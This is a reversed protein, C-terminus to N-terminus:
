GLHRLDTEWMDVVAHAKVLVSLVERAFRFGRKRIWMLRRACHLLLCSGPRCLGLLGRHGPRRSSDEPTRDVSTCRPIDYVSFLSAMLLAPPQCSLTYVILRKLSFSDSTLFLKSGGLFNLKLFLLFSIAFVSVAGSVDLAFGDEADSCGGGDCCCCCCSVVCCSEEGDAREHFDWARIVRGEDGWSVLEGVTDWRVWQM